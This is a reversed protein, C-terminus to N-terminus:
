TTAVASHEVLVGILMCMDVIPTHFSVRLDQRDWCPVSKGEAKLTKLEEILSVSFTHDSVHKVVMCYVEELQPPPFVVCPFATIAISLDKLLVILDLLSNHVPFRNLLSLSLSDLEIILGESVCFLWHECGEPQSTQSFNIFLICQPWHM